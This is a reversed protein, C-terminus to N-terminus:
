KGLLRLLLLLLSCSQSLFSVSSSFPDYTKGLMTADVAGGPCFEIMIQLPFVLVSDSLNELNEWDSFNGGAKKMKKKKREKKM